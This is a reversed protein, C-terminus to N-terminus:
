EPKKGVVVKRSTYIEYEKSCSLIENRVRAAFVHTEKESWGFDEIALRLISGVIDLTLIARAFKGLTKGEESEPWPGIPIEYEYATIDKFGAVAMEQQLTENNAVLFPRRQKEGAARFFEGWRNMYSEKALTVKRSRFEIPGEHFEAVGGPALARFVEKTFERWNVSGNLDRAHIYDFSSEKFTWERGCDDIQFKLNPPVWNPMIPSIDIGIVDADPHKDAFDIAWIGTGTGVDLVRKNYRNASAWSVIFVTVIGSQWLTDHFGDWMEQRTVDNPEWHYGIGENHYQRGFLQQFNEAVTDVSTTSATDLDFYGEDDFDEDGRDTFADDYDTQSIGEHDTESKLWHDRTDSSDITSTESLAHDTKSRCRTCNGTSARETVSGNQQSLEPRYEGSSGLPRSELPM